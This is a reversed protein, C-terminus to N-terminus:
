LLEADMAITCSRAIPPANPVLQSVARSMDIGNTQARVDARRDRRLERSPLGIAGGPPRGPPVCREIDQARGDSGTRRGRRTHTGTSKKVGHCERCPVIAALM